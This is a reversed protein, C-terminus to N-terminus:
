DVKLIAVTVDSVGLVLDFPGDATELSISIELSSETDIELTANASRVREDKMCEQEIGSRMSAIDLPSMDANLYDTVDFGYDPDGILQGRPTILRRAVAEAVLRRGTVTRGDAALDPFCSVDSGADFAM